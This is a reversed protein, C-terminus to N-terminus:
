PNSFMKAFTGAIEMTELFADHTVVERAGPEVLVDPQVVTTSMLHMPMAALSRPSQEGALRETMIRNGLNAEEGEDLRGDLQQFAQRRDVLNALREITTAQAQGSVQSMESESMPKLADAQVSQVSALVLGLVLFGALIVM